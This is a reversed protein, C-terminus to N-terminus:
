RFHAERVPSPQLFPLIDPLDRHLALLDWPHIASSASSNQVERGGCGAARKDRWRGEEKKAESSLGVRRVGSWAKVRWLAFLTNM